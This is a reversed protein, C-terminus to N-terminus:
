EKPTRITRPDPPLPSRQHEGEWLHTDVFDLIRNMVKDTKMAPDGHVCGPFLEIQARGAGCIDNVKRWLAVSQTYPVLQDCIGHILYTAPFRETVFNIPGASAAAAPNKRAPYGLLTNHPKEMDPVSDRDALYNGHVKELDHISLWDDEDIKVLDTPSYVGILRQISDDVQAYGLEEGKMISTGGVAAVMCALHAGASNGMVAIKSADLRYNDANARIFRIATRVDYLQSPRRSAPALRYEICVLAYSQSMVKLVGPMTNERKDGFFWSGGHLFMLVPFPGDGEDPLWIDLVQRPDTHAYPVDLWHNPYQEPDIPKFQSNDAM